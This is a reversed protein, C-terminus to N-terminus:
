PIGRAPPGVTDDPRLLGLALFIGGTVVAVDAVNFIFPFFSVLVFDTVGGNVVRDGLNGLAGAAVLAIGIRAVRGRVGAAFRTLAVLAAIALGGLLPLRWTTSAGGFLSFAIGENRVRVLSLWDDILAVRHYLVLRNMVAFKTIWDAAVVIIVIIALRRDPRRSTAPGYKM